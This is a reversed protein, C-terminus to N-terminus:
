MAVRAVSLATAINAITVTVRELGSWTKPERPGERIKGRSATYHPWYPHQATTLRVLQLCAGAHLELALEVRVREVQEVVRDAPVLSLAVPRRVVDGGSPTVIVMAVVPQLLLLLRPRRVVNVVVVPHFVALYTSQDTEELPTSPIM